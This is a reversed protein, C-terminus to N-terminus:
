DNYNDEIFCSIDEYEFSSVLKQCADFYFTKQRPLYMLFLDYSIFCLEKGNDYFCVSLNDNSQYFDKTNPILCPVDLPIIIYNSLHHNINKNFLDPVYITKEQKHLLWSGFSESSTVPHLLNAEQVGLYLEYKASPLVFVKDEDIKIENIMNKIMRTNEIQWSNELERLTSSTIHKQNFTFSCTWYRSFYLCTEIFLNIENSCTPLSLTFEIFSSNNRAYRVKIGRGIHNMEYFIFMNEKIKGEQLHRGIYSGYQLNGYQFYGFPIDKPFTSKQEIKVKYEILKSM